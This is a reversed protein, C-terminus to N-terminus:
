VRPGRHCVRRCRVPLRDECAAGDLLPVTPEEDEVRDLERHLRPAGDPDDSGVAGALRRQEVHEDAGLRRGGADTRNRPASTVAVLAASRQRIPMPRVCWTGRGNVSMVTKSFTTRRHWRRRAAARTRRRRGIGTPGRASRGGAAPSGARRHREPQQMSLSELEGTGQRGARGDEQEILDAAAEGVGFGLLQELGDLASRESPIAITQISCMTWTRTRATSRRMQMSAPRTMASPRGSSTRWSACPSRRTGRSAPTLRSSTSDRSTRWPARM